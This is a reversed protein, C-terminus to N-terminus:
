CVCTSYSYGCALGAAQDENIPHSCCSFLSLLFLHSFLFSFSLVFLVDSYRPEESRTGHCVEDTCRSIFTAVREWECDM